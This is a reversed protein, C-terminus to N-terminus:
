IGLLGLEGSLAELLEKVDKRVQPDGACALSSLQPLLAMVCGRPGALECVARARGAFEAPAQQGAFPAAALFESSDVRLAKLRSLVFTVDDLLHQPVEKGALGARSDEESYALLTARVRTLLAPVASRLLAERDASQAPPRPVGGSRASMAAVSQECGEAMGDAAEERTSCIDFLHGLTARECAPRRSGGDQFGALDSQLGVLDGLLKVAKESVEPPAVKCALLRHTILNAVAQFLMDAEDADAAEPKPHHRADAAMVSSIVRALAEMVARWYESSCRPALSCHELAPLSDEIIYLLAELALKWLGSERLWPRAQHGAQGSCVLATLVRCLHPVAGILAEVHALAQTRAASEANAADTQPANSSDPTARHLLMKGLNNFLVRRCFLILLCLTRAALAFKNTDLLVRRIDLFVACLQYIFFVEL